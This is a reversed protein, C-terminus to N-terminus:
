AHPPEQEADTGLVGAARRLGRRLPVPLREGLKRLVRTARWSTSAEIAALRSMAHAATAEARDAGSRTMELERKVSAFQDGVRQREAELEGLEGKAWALENAVRQREVELADARARAKELEAKTWALENAVKEHEIQAASRAVLLEQDVRQREEDIMRIHRTLREATELTKELEGRAWALQGVLFQTSMGASPTGESKSVPRQRTFVYSGALDPLVSGEIGAHLCFENVARTAGPWHGSAYDHVFILGGPAMRPWFFNLGELVPEYLDCDISVFAYTDERMEKTVSTPFIGSVWRNGDYDGVVARARELSTDKFAAQKAAGMGEEFQTEAFGGFTDIVYIKRAFRAAYLSLVAATHGRYVGLEALSGATKSLVHKVNLVISWLRALDLGRGLDDQTFLRFADSFEAHNHLEAFSCPQAMLGINNTYTNELKYLRRNWIDELAQM